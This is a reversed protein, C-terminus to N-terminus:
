EAGVARSLGRDDLDEGAVQLGVIARDQDVPQVHQLVGTLYLRLDAVQRLGRREVGFERHLGVEPHHGVQALNGLLFLNGKEGFRDVGRAKLLVQGTGNCVQALAEPLAHSQGLGDQVLRLEEDEVFGGHAEIRRLDHFDAVQDASQGIVAGDEEGRVDKGFDLGEAVTDDDQHVALDFGVRAEGFEAGRGIRHQHEVPRQGAHRRGQMAQFVHAADIQELADIAEGGVTDCSM